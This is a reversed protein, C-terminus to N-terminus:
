SYVGNRRRTTRTILKVPRCERCRYMQVHSHMHKFKRWTVCCPSSPPLNEVSYNEYELNNDICVSGGTYGIGFATKAIAMYGGVWEKTNGHLDDFFMYM